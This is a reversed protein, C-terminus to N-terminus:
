ACGSKPREHRSSTRWQAGGGAAAVARRRRGRLGPHCRTRRSRCRDPQRLDARLWQRGRVGLRCLATRGRRRGRPLGAVGSDGGRSFPGPSTSEVEIQNDFSLEGLEDGYGVVVDDLEIATVRGRTVATTRGIKGVSEGGLVDATTTMRGVPYQSTPSPSSPTWGRSRATSSREATRSSSWALRGPHRRPRSTGARRGGPRAARRRGRGVGAAHGVARPLQVARPDRRRRPRVRRADRRQRRRARDLRRAAAAPRSGDRGVIPRPDGASASPRGDRRESGPDPGDSARGHGRTRDQRGGQPRRQAGVVHRAPLPRGAPLVRRAQRALGLALASGGRAVDSPRVLRESLQRTYHVMQAKVERAEREDM